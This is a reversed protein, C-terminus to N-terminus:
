WPFNEEKKPDFITDCDRYVQEPPPLHTLDLAKYLKEYIEPRDYAYAVRRVEHGLVGDLEELPWGKNHWAIIEGADMSAIWDDDDKAGGAIVIIEEENEVWDLDDGDWTAVIWEDTEADYCASANPPLSNWDVLDLDSVREIETRGNESIESASASAKKKDKKEKGGSSYSYSQSWTRPGDITVPNGDRVTALGTNYTVEGDKGVYRITLASFESLCMFWAEFEPIKMDIMTSLADAQDTDDTGSFFPGMAPHTHVHLNCTDFGADVAAITAETVKDEAVRVNAASGMSAKSLWKVEGDEIVGYFAIENNGGAIQMLTMEAWAADPIHITADLEEDQTFSQRLDWLKKRAKGWASSPQEKGHAGRGYAHQQTQAVHKQYTNTKWKPEWSGKEV